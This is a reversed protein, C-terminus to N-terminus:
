DVFMLIVVDLFIGIMYKVYQSQGCPYERNIIQFSNSNNDFFSHLLNEIFIFNLM